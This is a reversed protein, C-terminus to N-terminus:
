GLWFTLATSALAVAGLGLAWRAQRQQAQMRQVLMANQEALDKVLQATARMEDELSQVQATLAQAQLQLQQLESPAEPSAESPPTPKRVTEWLRGAGQAIKPASEVVQGWPINALVTGLISPMAQM